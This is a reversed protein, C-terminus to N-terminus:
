AASGQPDAAGTKGPVDTGSGAERKMPTQGALGPSVDGGRANTRGAGSVSSGPFPKDSRAQNDGAGAAKPRPIYSGGGRVTNPVPTRQGSSAPQSSSPM